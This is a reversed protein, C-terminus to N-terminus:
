WVVKDAQVDAKDGRLRTALRQASDALQYASAALENLESVLQEVETTIKPNINHNTTM